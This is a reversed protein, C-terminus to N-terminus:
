VDISLVLVIVQLQARTERLAGELDQKLGALERREWLLLDDAVDREQLPVCILSCREGREAGLALM